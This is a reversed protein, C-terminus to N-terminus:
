LSSIEEVEHSSEDSPENDSKSTFPANSKDSDSDYGENCNRPPEVCVM